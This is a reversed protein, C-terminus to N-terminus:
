LATNSWYFDAEFNHLYPSVCRVVVNLSAAVIFILVFDFGCKGGHGYIGFFM